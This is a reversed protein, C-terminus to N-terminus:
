RQGIWQQWWEVTREIGSRLSFAPKWGTGQRVKQVDAVLLRPEALNAAPVTFVVKEPAGVTQAIEEVVTRIRVAVGSGINVPGEVNSEAVACLAAAADEVYLFDRAHEGSACRAELGRLLNLTVSPVLRQEQEGPGYLYFLRTWAFEIGCLRCYETLMTRLIDKCIGYLTRPRLPTSDESLLSFSWDYEACTGTAVLRRCGAEALARALTLGAAVCDLNEPATWYRVPVAHWALHIAIEPRAALTAARLDTLDNLDVRLLRAQTPLEMQRTRNAPRIVAYVEHGKELLQCVVHAGIFGGAGTVLIRM